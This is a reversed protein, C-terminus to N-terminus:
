DSSPLRRPPFVRSRTSVMTNTPPPFTRSQQLADSDKAVALVNFAEGELGAQCTSICRDVDMRRFISANNQALDFLWCTVYSPTDSVRYEAMAQASCDLGVGTNNKVFGKAVVLGSYDNFTTTM